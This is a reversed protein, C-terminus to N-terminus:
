NNFLCFLVGIHGGRRIPTLEHKHTLNLDHQHIHILNYLDIM